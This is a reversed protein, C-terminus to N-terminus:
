PPAGGYGGGGVGWVGVTGCVTTPVASLGGAISIQTLSLEETEPTGWANRVIRKGMDYGWFCVAFIPTVGPPALPLARTHSPVVALTSVTRNQPSGHLRWPPPFRRVFWRSSRVHRPVPWLSGGEQDDEDCLGHRQPVPPKWGSTGEPDPAPGPTRHFPGVNAVLVGRSVPPHLSVKVLDFPQGVAVLCM